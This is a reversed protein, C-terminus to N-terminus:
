FEELYRAVAVPSITEEHHCNLCEVILALTSVEHETQDNCYLCWDHILIASIM